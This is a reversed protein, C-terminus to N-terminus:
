CLLEIIVGCSIRFVVTTAKEDGCGKVITCENKPM